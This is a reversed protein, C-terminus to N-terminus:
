KNIYFCRVRCTFFKKSVLRKTMYAQRISSVNLLIGNETGNKGELSHELFM